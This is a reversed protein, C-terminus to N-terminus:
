PSILYQFSKYECSVPSTGGLTAFLGGKFTAALTATGAGTNGSMDTGAVGAVVTFTNDDGIPADPLVMGIGKVPEICVGGNEGGVVSVSGASTKVYIGGILAGVPGYSSRFAVLGYSVLLSDKPDINGPLLPVPPFPPPLFPFSTPPM